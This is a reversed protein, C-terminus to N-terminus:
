RDYVRVVDYLAPEAEGTIEGFRPWKDRFEPAHHAAALSEASEWQVYNVIKTGDHSRHLSVSVFGPQTKMFEAREQMLALAEASRGPETEVTTIQTVLGSREAINPM